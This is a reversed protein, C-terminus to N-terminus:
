VNNSNAFIIERIVSEDNTELVTYRGEVAVLQRPLHGLIKRYLEDLNRGKIIVNQEISFTLEIVTKDANIKGGTLLTYSIFEREGNPQVFDLHRVHGPTSYYEISSEGEKKPDSSDGMLKDFKSEM